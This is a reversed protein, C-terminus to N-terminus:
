RNNIIPSPRASQGGDIGDTWFRVGEFVSGSQRQFTRGMQFSAYCDVGDKSGRAPTIQFHHRETPLFLGNGATFTREIGKM